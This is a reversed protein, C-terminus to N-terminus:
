RDSKRNLVSKIVCFKDTCYYGKSKIRRWITMYIHGLSMEKCLLALNTYPHLDGSINDRHIYIYKTSM